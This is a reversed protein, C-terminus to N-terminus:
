GSPGRLAVLLLCASSAALVSRGWRDEVVLFRGVGYLAFVQLCAALIRRSHPDLLSQEAGAARLLLNTGLGLAAWLIPTALAALDLGRPGPERSAGMCGQVAPPLLGWPLSAIGVAAAASLCLIWPASSQPDTWLPRTLAYGSFALLAGTLQRRRVGWFFGPGFAMVALACAAAFDLSRTRAEAPGADLFFTAALVPAVVLWVLGREQLPVPGPSGTEDSQELDHRPAAMARATETRPTSNLLGLLMYLCLLVESDAWNYETLGSVLFGALAALVGAALGQGNGAPPTRFRAWASRFARGLLWLFAALGFLGTEVGLQLFNNHLHWQNPERALPHRFAPYVADVGHLGVGTMLHEASVRWGAWWMFLRQTNSAAPGAAESVNVGFLEQATRLPSGGALSLLVITLVVLVAAGPLLVRRGKLALLAAIGTVLGVFPGKAGTRLVAFAMLLAAGLWSARVLPRSAPGKAWIAQGLAVCATMLLYEGFTLHLSFFGSAKGTSADFHGLFDWGTYSQVIGYAAALSSATLLCGLLIRRERDSRVYWAFLFYVVVLGLSRFEKLSALPAVSTWVSLFSAVVLLGVAPDLDTQRFPLETGGKYRRIIEVLAFFLAAAWAANTAAISLPSVLSFAVLAGFVLTRPDPNM